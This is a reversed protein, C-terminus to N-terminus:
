IGEEMNNVAIVGLMEVAKARQKEAYELARQTDAILGDWYNAQSDWYEHPSTM